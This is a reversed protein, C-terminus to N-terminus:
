FASAWPGKSLLLDLTQDKPGASGATGHRSWSTLLSQKGAEDAAAWLIKFRAWSLDFNAMAQRDRDTPAEKFKDRIVSAFVARNDVADVTKGPNKQEYLFCAMDAYADIAAETLPPNGAVAIRAPGLLEGAIDAERSQPARRAQLRVLSRLRARYNEKQDAGADLAGQVRPWFDLIGTVEGARNGDLKEALSEKIRAELEASLSQGGAFSYLDLWYRIARDQRTEQGPRPQNAGRAAPAAKPRMRGGTSTAAPGPVISLARAPGAAQGRPPWPADDYGWEPGALAGPRCFAAASLLGALVLIRGRRGVIVGLYLNGYARGISAGDCAPGLVAAREGIICHSGSGAWSFSALLIIIDAPLRLTAQDEPSGGLM